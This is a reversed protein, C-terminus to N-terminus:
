FILYFHNPSRIRLITIILSMVVVCYSQCPPNEMWETEVQMPPLHGGGHLHFSLSEWQCQDSDNDITAALTASKINRDSINNDSSPRQVEAHAGSMWLRTPEKWSDPPNWAFKCLCCCQQCSQNQYKALLHKVFSSLVVQPWPDSLLMTIPMAELKYTGQLRILPLGPAFNSLLLPWDLRHDTCSM